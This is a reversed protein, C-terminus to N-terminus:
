FELEIKLGEQAKGNLLEGSIPKKGETFVNLKGWLEDGGFKLKGKANILEADQVIVNGEQGLIRGEIIKGNIKVVEAEKVNNKLMGEKICDLVSDNEDLILTLKSKKETKNEKGLIVDFRTM